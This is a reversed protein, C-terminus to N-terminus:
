PIFSTPCRRARACATLASQGLHIPRGPQRLYQVSLYFESYCKANFPGHAFEDVPGDIDCELAPEGTRHIEAIEEQVRWHGETTVSQAYGENFWAPVPLARPGAEVDGIIVHAMEHMVILNYNIHPNQIYNGIDLVLFQRLDDGRGIPQVYAVKWRRLTDSPIEKAQVTLPHLLGPYHLNWQTTIAAYPPLPVEEGPWRRDVRM